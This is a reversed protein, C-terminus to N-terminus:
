KEELTMNELIAEARSKPVEVSQEPAETEEEDKPEEIIESPNEKQVDKPELPFISCGGLVFLCCLSLLIKKM